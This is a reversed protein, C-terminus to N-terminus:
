PLYLPEDFRNTSLVFDITTLAKLVKTTLFPTVQCFRVCVDFFNLFINKYCGINKDEYFKWCKLIKKYELSYDIFFFNLFNKNQPTVQPLCCFNLRYEPLIYKQM